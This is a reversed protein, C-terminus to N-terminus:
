VNNPDITSVSGFDCLKYTNRFKLVNEIKINKHSIPTNKLHM